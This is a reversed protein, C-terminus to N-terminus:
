DSIHTTTDWFIARVRSQRNSGPRSTSSATSLSRCENGQKSLFCTTTNYMVDYQQPFYDLLCDVPAGGDITKVSPIENRAMNAPAYFWTAGDFIWNNPQQRPSLIPGYTMCMILIQVHAVVARWTAGLRLELNKDWSIWGYTHTTTWTAVFFDYNVGENRGTFLKRPFVCASSGTPIETQQNPRHHIRPWIRVWYCNLILFM